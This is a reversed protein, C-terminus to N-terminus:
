EKFVFQIMTKPNTFITAQVEQKNIIKFQNPIDCTGVIKLFPESEIFYITSDIQQVKTKIRFEPLYNEQKPTFLINQGCKIDDIKKAPINIVYTTNNTNNANKTLVAKAKIPYNFPIFYAVFLLLLFIAVFVSIGIRIILPPIKGIISRIKESRLAVNDPYKTQM